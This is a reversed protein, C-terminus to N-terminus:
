LLQKVFDILIVSFSIAVLVPHFLFIQESCSVFIYCLLSICLCSFISLSSSEFTDCNRKKSVRQGLLKEFNVKTRQLTQYSVQSGDKNSM